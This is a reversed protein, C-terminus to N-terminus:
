QPWNIQAANPSVPGFCTVAIAWIITSNALHMSNGVVSDGRKPDLVPLPRVDMSQAVVPPVPFGHASLKDAAVM